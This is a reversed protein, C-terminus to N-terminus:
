SPLNETATIQIMRHRGTMDQAFNINMSIGSEDDVARMGAGITRLQATLDDQRVNIRVIPHSGVGGATQREVDGRFSPMREIHAPGEWFTETALTFGGYGDPTKVDRVIRVFQKLRGASISM